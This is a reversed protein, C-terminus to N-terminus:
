DNQECELAAGGPLMLLSLRNWAPSNNKWAEAGAHRVSDIIFVKCGKGGERM